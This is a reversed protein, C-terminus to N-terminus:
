QSIEPKIYGFNHDGDWGYIKFPGFGRTIWVMVTRTVPWVAPKGGKTVRILVKTHVEVRQGGDGTADSTIKTIVPNIYGPGGDHNLVVEQGNATTPVQLWDYYTLHILRQFNARFRKESGSTVAAVIKHWENIAADGAMYQDLNQLQRRGAPATATLLDQNWAQDTTWQVAFNVANLASARGFQKVAGMRIIPVGNREWTTDYSAHATSASLTDPEATDEPQSPVDTRDQDSTSASTTENADSASSACASLSMALVLGVAAGRLRNTSRLM